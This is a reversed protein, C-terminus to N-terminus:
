HKVWVKGLSGNKNRYETFEDPLGEKSYYNGSEAHWGRSEADKKLARGLTINSLEPCLNDGAWSQPFFRWGKKEVTDFVDSVDPLEIKAYTVKGSQAKVYVEGDIKVTKADIREINM